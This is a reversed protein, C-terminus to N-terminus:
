FISSYSKQYTDEYVRGNDYLEPSLVIRNGISTTSFVLGVLENTVGSYIKDSSINGLTFKLQNYYTSGVNAAETTEIYIKIEVHDTPLPVGNISYRGDVRGKHGYKSLLEKDSTDAIAKLSPTMTDLECNYKVEIKVVTGNIKAKPASQHMDKLIDLADNSIRSDAKIGTSNAKVLLQDNPTVKTGPKVIDWVDM